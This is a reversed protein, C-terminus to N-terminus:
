IKALVSTRKRIEKCKHNLIERQPNVREQLQSTNLHYRINSSNEGQGIFCGQHGLVLPPTPSFSGRFLASGGRHGGRGFGGTMNHHLINVPFFLYYYYYNPSCCPFSRVPAWTMPTQLARAWVCCCELGPTGALNGGARAGVLNLLMM